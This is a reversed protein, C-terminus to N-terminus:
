RSLIVKLEWMAHRRKGAPLSTRALSGLLRTRGFPTRLERDLLIRLVRGFPIRLKQGFPIRLKRGFPFRRAIPRLYCHEQSLVPASLHHEQPHDARDQAARATLLFPVTSM